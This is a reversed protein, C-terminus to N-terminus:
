QLVQTTQDYIITPTQNTPTITGSSQDYIWGTNGDANGISDVVNINNNLMNRPIKPLYPGCAGGAQAAGSQDTTGTMPAWQNTALDPFNDGHQVRYVQLQQRITQLQGAISSRRADAGATGFQAVVVSAIVGLIVVVILIEVLTFGRRPSRSNVLHPPQTHM